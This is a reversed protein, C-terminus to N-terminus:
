PQVEAERRKFGLTLAVYVVWLAAVGVSLGILVIGAHLDRESDRSFETQSNMGPNTPDFYITTYKGSIPDAIQSDSRLLDFDGEYETGHVVFKYEYYDNEPGAVQVIRATMPQERLAAGAERRSKILRMASALALLVALLLLFSSVKSHTTM